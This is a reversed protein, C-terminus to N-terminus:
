GSFAERGTHEGQHLTYLLEGIGFLGIAVPIFNIGTILEPSGFTYRQDGSGLDVGVTALTFGFLASIVGYRWKGGAIVVLTLLGIMVVLFTESPGFSQALRAFAPALVTLLILGITGAVFSGVACLVLAPGARGQQALPYGDFTSAVTSSEGPTNILVSTITGGFMAGYYIAALMVIASTPDMSFTLPLLIAIGASAGLGPMVGVVMGVLVGIALYLLNVPALAVSFGYILDAFVDM